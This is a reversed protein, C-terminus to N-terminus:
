SLRPGECLVRFGISPSCFDPNQNIRCASRLYWPHSGWSGGRVVRNESYNDVWPSGDTPANQYNDHWKDECWEWVNGYINWLGWPNPKSPQEPELLKLNTQGTAELFFNWLYSTTWGVNHTRNNNRKLYSYYNDQNNKWIEVTNLIFNGSNDGYWAYDRLKNEDYGFFYVTQTGARCAYEWEAESPLRYIKGTIQSLKRCFEQCDNWSVQEVPHNPNFGIWFNGRFHSPNNGMVTQWQEQTVPYRGLYFEKVNVQHIPKENDTENSGMLFSGAPIKVLKLKIDGSLLQTLIQPNSSPVQIQTKVATASRQSQAKTAALDQLVEGAGTYRKKTGVAIMKDLVTGFQPSVPNNGLYNRWCWEHEGVDFLKLPSVKTLLYLCTVGLSYLDSANVTKGLNQEPASFGETGITTGTVSRNQPTVAKAAGFDVLVLKQDAQRRIINDPKIDRHIVQNRHIFDLVPLLDALLARIKGENFVGQAALEQALNQGAVYEQVLYQRQDEAIFYALLEPIQNHHGLENLRKAEEQFLEAAK